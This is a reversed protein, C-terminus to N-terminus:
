RSGSEEEEIRSITLRHNKRQGHEILVDAPKEDDEPDVVKEFSCDRCSVRVRKGGDAM